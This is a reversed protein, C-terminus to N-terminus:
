KGLVISINNDYSSVIAVDAKGDGNFDGVAIARPNQGVNFVSGPSTITGDGNGSYLTVVSAGATIMALDTKADGNFDGVAVFSDEVVAPSKQTFTGDGAGLLVSGSSTVIDIGLAGDMNATALYTGVSIKTNVPAAFTGDGNGMALQLVNTSDPYAIDMKGDNNFDGIAINAPNGVVPSAATAFTGDGNGLFVSATTLGSKNLVILDARTDNNLDATAIFYPNSGVGTSLSTGVAFTGDGHGLLITVNQSNLNSVALDLHGDGNFDACVAQVPTVGTTPLTITSSTFTDDGAGLLVTLTNDHSNVSVLDIKKDGNLDCAVVDMPQSGVAITKSAPSGSPPNIVTVNKTSGCGVLAAMLAVLSFVLLGRIANKQAAVYSRIFTMYFDEFPDFTSVQYPACSIGRQYAYILPKGFHM